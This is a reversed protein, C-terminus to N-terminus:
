RRSLAQATKAVRPDPDDTFPALADPSDPAIEALAQVVRLRADPAAGAAAAVLSAPIDDGSASRRTRMAALAEAAEVDHDGSCVMDILAGVLAPSDTRRALALASAGRVPPPDDLLDTLAATARDDDIERLVEVIRLRVATDSDPLHALLASTIDEDTRVLSWRLAGAVNPDDERLYLAVLTAVTPREPATLAAAQRRAPDASRLATLLATLGLVDDWSNPPAGPRGRVADLHDLLAQETHIRERTEARLRDLVAGVDLDPADLASRVEGVGMGLARLAEAKMLREVDDRGYDRYGGSTRQSPSVLGREDYHRLMRVSVGSLRSVEGIRM